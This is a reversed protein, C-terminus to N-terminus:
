KMGPNCILHINETKRELYKTVIDNAFNKYLKCCASENWDDRKYLRGTNAPQDVKELKDFNYIIAICELTMKQILRQGIIHPTDGSFIDAQVQHIIEGTDIGSNIHMFTAGIMHLEENVLPWINTGSGRYYPSIGLHINIFRNTFLTLLRSRIISSGYCIILDPQLSEIYEIVSDENIHGKSIHKTNKPEPLLDDFDKFFDIECQERLYAHELEIKSTVTKEKIRNSLSLSDSECISAIVNLNPDNSVRKRFYRHRLENGTLIITKLQHIRL